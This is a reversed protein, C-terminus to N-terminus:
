LKKLKARRQREIKSLRRPNGRKKTSIQAPQYEDDENKDFGRSQLVCASELKSKFEGSSIVTANYGSCFDAIERDSTIVIFGGGTNGTKVMKKIVEDASEGVRSYIMSIGGIRDYEELPNNSRLGDFVVTIDYNKIRKYACLKKILGDREFELNKNRMLGYAGMLNYGDILLKTAM